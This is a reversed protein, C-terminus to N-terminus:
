RIIMLDVEHAVNVKIQMRSEAWPTHSTDDPTEGSAAAVTITYRALAPAHKLNADRHVQVVARCVKKRMLEAEVTVTAARMGLMVHDDFGLRKPADPGVM